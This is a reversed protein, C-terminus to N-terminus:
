NAPPNQLEQVGSRQSSELTQKYRLIGQEFRAAETAVHYGLRGDHYLHCVAVHRGLVAADAILRRHCRWWLSESCMVATPETKAHALVSDLAEWFDPSAMYDAYGRFSPHEWFASPSNPLPKRFGGLRPEWRYSIGAALLSKGLQERNFQPNKRSSPFSRVDVIAAIPVGALLRTFDDSSLTGHGCTFLDM